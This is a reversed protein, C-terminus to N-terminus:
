KCHESLIKAFTEITGEPLVGKMVDVIASTIAKADEVKQRQIMESRQKQGMQRDYSRNISLFQNSTLVTSLISIMGKIIEIDTKVSNVIYCDDDEMFTDNVIDYGWNNAVACMIIEQNTM